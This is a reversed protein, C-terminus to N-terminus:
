KAWWWDQLLIQVAPFREQIRRLEDEMDVWSTEFYDAAEFFKIMEITNSVLLVNDLCEVAQEDYLTEILRLQGFKGLVSFAGECFGVLGDTFRLYELRTCCLLQHLAEKSIDKAPEVDDILHLHLSQLNPFTKGIFSLADNALKSRICIELELLPEPHLSLLLGELDERTKYTGSELSLDVSAFSRLSPFLLKRGINRLLLGSDVLRLETLFSNSYVCLQELDFNGEVHLVELHPCILGIASNESLIGFLTKPSCGLFKLQALGKGVLRLLSRAVADSECSYIVLDQLRDFAESSALTMLQPNFLFQGSTQRFVSKEDQSSTRLRAHLRRCTRTEALCLLAMELFRIPIHLRLETIPCRKFLTWALETAIKTRGCGFCGSDLCVCLSRSQWLPCELSFIMARFQRSTSALHIVDKFEIMPLLANVIISEDVYLLISPRPLSPAGKSPNVSRKGSM